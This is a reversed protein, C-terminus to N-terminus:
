HHEDHPADPQQFAWELGRERRYLYGITTVLLLAGAGLVTILTVMGWDASAETARSHAEFTSGGHEQAAAIIPMAAAAAGLLMASIRRKLQSM